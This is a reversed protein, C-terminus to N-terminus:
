TYCQNQQNRYPGVSAHPKGPRRSPASFDDIAFHTSPIIDSPIVALDTRCFCEQNFQKAGIHRHLRTMRLYAIGQLLEPSIASAIAFIGSFVLWPAVRLPIRFKLDGIGNETGM